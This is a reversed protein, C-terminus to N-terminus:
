HLKFLNSRRCTRKYPVIPLKVTHCTEVFFQGRELTEPNCGGNTWWSLTVVPPLVAEARFEQSGNGSCVVTPGRGETVKWVTASWDGYFDRHIKRDTVMQIESTHFGDKVLETSAEYWLSAPLMYTTFYLVAALMILSDLIHIKKVM